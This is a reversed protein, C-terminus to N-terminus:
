AEDDTKRPPLPIEESDAAFGIRNYLAIAVAKTLRPVTIKSICFVSPNDAALDLAERRTGVAVSSEPADDLGLVTYIVM